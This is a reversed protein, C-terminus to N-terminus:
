KQFVLFSIIDNKEKFLFAGIIIPAKKNNLVNFDKVM